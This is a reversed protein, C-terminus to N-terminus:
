PSLRRRDDRRLGRAYLPHHWARRHLVVGARGRTGFADPSGRARTSCSVAAPATQTKLFRTPTRASNTWTSPSSRSARPRSDRSRDLAPFLGSLGSVLEGLVRRLVIKGRFDALRVRQGKPGRLEVNPATTAAAPRARARRWWCCMGGRGDCVRTSARRRDNRGCRAMASVSCTEISAASTGRDENSAASAADRAASSSIWSVRFANSRSAM